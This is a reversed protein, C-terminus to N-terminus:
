IERKDAVLRFSSTSAYSMVSLGKVAVGVFALRSWVSDYATGNVPATGAALHAMKGPSNIPIIQKHQTLYTAYGVEDTEPRDGAILARVAAAPVPKKTDYLIGAPVLEWQLAPAEIHRSEKTANYVFDAPPKGQALALIFHVGEDAATQTVTPMSYTHKSAFVAGNVAIRPTEFNIVQEM